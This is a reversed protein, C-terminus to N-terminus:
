SSMAYLNLNKCHHLLIISMKKNDMKLMNYKSPRLMLPWSPHQFYYLLEVHYLILNGKRIKSFMNSSGEAPKSLKFPHKVYLSTM